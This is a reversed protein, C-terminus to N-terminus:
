LQSVQFNICHTTTTSVRFIYVKMGPKEASKEIKTIHLISYVLTFNILVKKQLPVNASNFLVIKDFEVTAKQVSFAEMANM